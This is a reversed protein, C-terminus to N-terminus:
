RGTRVAHQGRGGRKAPRRKRAASKAHRSLAKKSVTRHPERKLVRARTKSRNKSVKKKRGQPAAARIRKTSKKKNARGKAPVPIGGRPAKALGIAIAHEPSSKPKKVTSKKPM